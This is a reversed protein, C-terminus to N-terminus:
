RLGLYRSFRVGFVRDGMYCCFLSILIIIVSSLPYPISNYVPIINILRMVMIHCLFIGFSYDGIMRILYNKIDYRGSQFITFAILIFLTSTLFSSLKVQSGCNVEGLMLWGYGEAIQIIISAVYWSFLVKLSYKIEIIRNGLILGLYYFTFWGLCSNGWILSILPNLQLGTLLWYYKFIIVSVAIIFWGLWQFRSKALKGFFPTLIVFQIYVLIYYLPAAAKATLLYYPLKALSGLVLTYLVTWIIYPIIVRKIRKKYFAIWNDNEIRTLYGSLFLFTAVASNIFPRCFVQYLGLPTTHIM